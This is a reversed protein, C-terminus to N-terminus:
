NPGTGAQRLHMEILGSQLDNAPRESFRALLGFLWRARPVDNLKLNAIVAGDRLEDPSIWFRRRRLEPLLREAAGATEQFDWAALGHYFAVADHVPPPADHRELYRRAARYFDEDAVGQAGGSLVREIETFMGLWARWSSPPSTAELAERWLRWRFIAQGAEAAQSLDVEEGARDARVQAAVSNAELRPISLVPLHPDDPLGLRRGEILGSISFRDTSLGQLGAATHSLFRRKEAGLDLAPYFDSNPPVMRDLLPALLARGALRTAELAAPTMPVFRCLNEQVGPLSFVSWDPERLRPGNGAVILMDTDTTLFIEYSPFNRHIAALVQLALEDDVEYLHLWQAFVGQDSLHRRVRTYFETTFLASVGSVWPNSPESVILDYTQQQSAFYSKADDIVLKSRPDDFVRRNYPYFVRSGAIMEPKIEITALVHLAPSALLQHSTMGSGHGIVAGTRAGPAHALAILGSLTQTSADGRMPVRTSDEYCPVFWDRTLSADSKGNTALYTMAAGPTQVASVTATRGDRYFVVMSDPVASGGRRFVGSVLLGEQLPILQAGVLVVLATASALAYGLRRGPAPGSFLLMVGLAMDIAAGVLLMAKLGIWPLLVLGGLVVGTISGVTNIAYVKGVAREGDATAMLTRTILPLTMGALFTAPFMVALCIVYRSVTFGSYGADTRAFTQILRATWAFSEIYIPLTALASLGMLWQIIGLARLPDTIRDAWSRIWLSGLALGLIFASLMLEFSHTASGLVLSLMRIWDVEYIFSAVATWFTVVPLLWRPGAAEQPLTGGAPAPPAPVDPEVSRPRRRTLAVVAITALGVFLNLAAAVGLTGPLGVRGVLYFGAVLVGVAAGLSNTFYLQGLIRGAPLRTLRIAGATMLPFTAGLLVSQPLILGGTIGWKVVALKWTGAVAPYLSLYASETVSLYVDHFGLGLGGVVLEVLAYGLLPSAIRTTFRSVAAAGLSMGGLFIILVAIQGYADHGAFLGLYRAWIAEYILGAAGSLFFLWSLVAITGDGPRGAAVSNATSL